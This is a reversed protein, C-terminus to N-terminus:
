PERWRRVFADVEPPMPLHRFPAALAAVEAIIGPHLERRQSPTLERHWEDFRRAREVTRPALRDAVCRSCLRRERWPRKWTVTERWESAPAGCLACAEPAPAFELVRPYDWRRRHRVVIVDGTHEPWPTDPFHFLVIAVAGAQYAQRALRPHQGLYHAPPGANHGGEMAVFYGRRWEELAGATVLLAEDAGICCVPLQEYPEGRRRAPKWSMPRERVMQAM